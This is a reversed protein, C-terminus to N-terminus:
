TCTAGAETWRASLETYSLTPNRHRIRVQEFCSVDVRRVFERFGQEYTQRGYQFTWLMRRISYARLYEYMRLVQAQTALKGQPLSLEALVRANILSVPEFVEFSGIYGTARDCDKQDPVCMILANIRYDPQEDWNVITVDGMSRLTAAFVGKVLGGTESDDVDLQVRVPQAQAAFAVLCFVALPLLASKKMVPRQVRDALCTLFAEKGALRIARVKPQTTRRKLKARHGGVSVSKSEDRLKAQVDGEVVVVDREHPLLLDLM